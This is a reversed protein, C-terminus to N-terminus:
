EGQSGASWSRNMQDLIIATADVPQGAYLIRRDRMFQKYQAELPAERSPFFEASSDDAVVVDWGRAESIKRVEERLSTFVSQWLKVREKELIDNWYAMQGEYRFELDKYAVIAERQADSGEAMKMAQEAESLRSKWADGDAQIKAARAQLKREADARQELGGIVEEIDVVAVIVASASSATTGDAMNAGIWGVLVALPFWSAVRM